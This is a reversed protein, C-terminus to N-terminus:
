EFTAGDVWCACVYNWCCIISQHTAPPSVALISPYNVGEARPHQWALSPVGERGDLGRRMRARLVQLVSSWLAPVGAGLVTSILLIRNFAKAWAARNDWPLAWLPLM